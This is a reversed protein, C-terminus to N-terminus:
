ETLRTLEAHRLADCARLPIGGLVLQTKDLLQDCSRGSEQKFICLTFATENLKPLLPLAPLLSCCHVIRKPTLSLLPFRVAHM